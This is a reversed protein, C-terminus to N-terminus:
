DNDKYILEDYLYIIEDEDEQNILEILIYKLKNLLGKM